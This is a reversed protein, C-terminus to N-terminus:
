SIWFFINELYFFLYLDDLLYFKLYKKIIKPHDTVLNDAEDHYAVFFNLVMEIMYLADLSIDSALYDSIQIIFAVRFGIKM